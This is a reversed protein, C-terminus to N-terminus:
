RDRSNRIRQQYRNYFDLAKLVYDCQGEVPINKPILGVIRKDRFPSKEKQNPKEESMIAEIVESTLKGDSHFKRLRIAQYHSPTADNYDITEYLQEQAEEPLYSIEVAPRMAIRGEDVLELLDPILNTLRIYRRIQERSEGVEEALQENTRFKSESPTSTKDTRMGQRNMAELRMKYAFAKESPLIIERQLNSDVMALIAEDRTMEKVKAPIKEIGAIEFARKRRHGSVMEYKGDETPRIIIPQILGRQMVSEVLENMSEDDKVKYPHDPFDRIQNIPVQVVKEENEINMM